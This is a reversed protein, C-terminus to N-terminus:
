TVDDVDNKSSNQCVFNRAQKCAIWGDLITIPQLGDKATKMKNNNAKSCFKTEIRAVDHSSLTNPLSAYKHAHGQSHKVLKM